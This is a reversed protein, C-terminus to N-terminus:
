MRNILQRKLCEVNDRLEQNRDILKDSFLNLNNFSEELQMYNKSLESIYMSWRQEKTHTMKDVREKIELLKKNKIEM